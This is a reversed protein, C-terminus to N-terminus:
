PPPPSTREGPPATQCLGLPDRHSSPALRIHKRVGENETTLFVCTHAHVNVGSSLFHEDKDRLRQVQLLDQGEEAWHNGKGQVPVLMKTV